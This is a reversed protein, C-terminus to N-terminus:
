TSELHNSLPLRHKPSAAARPAFVSERPIMPLGPGFGRAPETIKTAGSGIPGPHFIKRSAIRGGPRASTLRQGTRAPGHQLGLRARSRDARRQERGARPDPVPPQGVRLEGAHGHGPYVRPPSWIWEWVWPERLRDRVNALPPAWAIPTPRTPARLADPPVPLLERRGRRDGRDARGLRWTRRPRTSPSTARRAVSSRGRLSPSVQGVM